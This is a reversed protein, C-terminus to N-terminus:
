PTQPMSCAARQDRSLSSQRKRALTRFRDTETICHVTCQMQAKSLWTKSPLNACVCAHLLLLLRITGCRNWCTQSIIHPSVTALSFMSGLFIVVYFTSRSTCQFSDDACVFCLM